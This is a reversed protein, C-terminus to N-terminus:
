SEDLERRIYKMELEMKKIITHMQDLVRVKELIDTTNRFVGSLRKSEKKLFAINNHFLEIDAGNM